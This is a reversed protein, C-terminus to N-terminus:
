EQNTSGNTPVVKPESKLSEKEKNQWIQRLLEYRYSYYFKIYRLTFVILLFVSTLLYLLVEVEFHFILKGLLLPPTIFLVMAVNRCFGSLNQFSSIREHTMNDGRMYKRGLKTVRDINEKSVEEGSTKKFINEVIIRNGETELEFGGGGVMRSIFKEISRPKRLGMVLLNPKAIWSNTLWDEFVIFSLTAVVHGAAYSGVLLLIGNSIGLEVDLWGRNFVYDVLAILLIGSILYAFFDYSNFRSFKGNYDTLKDM